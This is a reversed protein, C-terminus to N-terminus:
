MAAVGRRGSTTSAMSGNRRSRKAFAWLRWEPPWSARWATSSALSWRRRAEDAGRGLLDEEGGRPGFGVIQGELAHGQGAPGPALPDDDRRDLVQGDEVRGLAQLLEPELGHEDGDVPEAADIGAVDPLGQRLVRDEDGDLRGVALDPGQLRHGLDGADARSFPTGNWVSATAAAPFM